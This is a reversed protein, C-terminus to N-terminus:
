SESFAKLTQPPLYSCKLCVELTADDNKQFFVVQIVFIQGSVPRSSYMVYQIEKHVYREPLRPLPLSPPEPLRRQPTCGPTPIPPLPSNPTRNRPKPPLPPPKLRPPPPPPVEGTEISDEGTKKTCSRWCNQYVSGVHCVNVYQHNLVPAKERDPLNMYVYKCPRRASPNGPLNYYVYMTKSSSKGKVSDFPPVSAQPSLRKQKRTEESEKMFTETGSIEGFLGIAQMCGHITKWIEQIQDSLVAINPLANFSLGHNPSFTIGNKFPVFTYDLLARTNPPAGAIIMLRDRMIHLTAVKPKVKSTKDKVEINYLLVLFKVPFFSM